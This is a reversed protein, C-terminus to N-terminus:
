SWVSGKVMQMRGGFKVQNEVVNESWICGLALFDNLSYAISSGVETVM